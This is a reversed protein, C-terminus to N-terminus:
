LVFGSDKNRIPRWSKDIILLLVSAWLQHSSNRLVFVQESMQESALEPKNYFVFGM